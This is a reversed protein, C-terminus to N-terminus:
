AILGTALVGVGFCAGAFGFVWVAPSGRNDLMWLVGTTALLVGLFVALPIV